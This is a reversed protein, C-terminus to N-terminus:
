IILICLDNLFIFISDSNEFILHRFKVDVVMYFGMFFLGHNHDEITAQFYTEFGHREM